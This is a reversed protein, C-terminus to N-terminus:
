SCLNKFTRQITLWLIAQYEFGKLGVKKAENITITEIQKYAINGVQSYNKPENLLCARIHWIDITVYNSNLLAINQLFAFTKKSTPKIEIKGNAIGYAKFKNKHFTSVKINEPAINNKVAEFITVTDILNRNWKNRPSLSSIVAAVCYSSVNYKIALENCFKNVDKYWQLGDKIEKSTAQNFLFRLNRAVKEKKYNTLQKM